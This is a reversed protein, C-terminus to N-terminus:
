EPLDGYVGRLRDDRRAAAPRLRARRYHRMLCSGSTLIASRASQGAALASCCLSGKDFGFHRKVGAADLLSVAAAFERLWRSHTWDDDYDFLSGLKGSADMNVKCFAQWRKNPHVVKFVSLVDDIRQRAHVSFNGGHLHAIRNRELRLKEFLTTYSTGLEVNCIREVEAPLDGAGITKAELFNGGNQRLREKQKGVVLELPDVAAIRAKLDLEM